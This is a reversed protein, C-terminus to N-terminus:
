ARRDLYPIVNRIGIPQISNKVWRPVIMVPLRETLYRTMEFSASGSGIIPGARFETVNGNRGLIEGVAARSKLHESLSNAPLLGGLYIVKETKSAAAAFNEAYRKEREAFDDGEFMAHVLFYAADINEFAARLTEPKDLDGEVIEIRSFWKKSKLRERDRVFARVEYGKDLLQPILRGGIYGTAGTVLIKM